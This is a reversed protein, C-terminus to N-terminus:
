LLLQMYLMVLKNKHPKFFVATPSFHNASKGKYMAPGTANFVLYGPIWCMTLIMVIGVLNALPTKRLM